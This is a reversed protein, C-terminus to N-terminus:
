INENNNDTPGNKINVEIREIRTTVEGSLQNHQLKPLVYELLKISLKIAAEPDTKRLKNLDRELSDLQKSVIQNIILKVEETSKNPGKRGSRNINPDGKKFGM